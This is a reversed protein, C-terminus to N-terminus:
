NTKVKRIPINSRYKQKTRKRKRREKRKRIKKKKMIERNRRTKERSYRIPKEKTKNERM